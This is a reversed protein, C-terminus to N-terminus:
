ARLHWSLGRGCTDPYIQFCLNKEGNELFFIFLRIWVHRIRITKEQGSSIALVISVRYWGKNLM